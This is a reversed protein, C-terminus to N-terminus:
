RSMNCFASHYRGFSRWWPLPVEANDEPIDVMDVVAQAAVKLEELEEQLSVKSESLSKVQKLAELVEKNSDAKIKRLKAIEDANRYMLIKPDLVM